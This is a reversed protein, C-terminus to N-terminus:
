MPADFSKSYGTLEVYGAGELPRGAKTGSVSVSGEWYTVGASATAHMEQDALNPVITVEVALPAITMRWKAPYRGASRPSQWSDLVEVTFDNEALHHARANEDVYSGSSGVGLGGDKERLLFVMVETQDSLQLSFWDWGTLGPELPATSFEHDMWSLGEVSYGTEGIVLTGRTNLRTFSYYCSAREVTSGKRSYGADGHSVPPKLPALTLNFGFADADARLQHNKSEIRVDWDKLFVRILNGAQIAGALDLAGRAVREAQLHQRGDIDSVAAHVLFIQQTRWASTPSPWIRESGPPSIQSRFFTLQFGFRRGQASYLNGTYYWWETRYGPHAGHDAPFQFNCPGTVSLYDDACLPLSLALLLLIVACLM